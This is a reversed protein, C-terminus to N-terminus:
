AFTILYGMRNSIVQVKKFWWGLLWEGGEGGAQEEKVIKTKFGSSVSVSPSLVFNKMFTPMLESGGSNPDVFLFAIYDGMIPGITATAASPTSNYATFSPLYNGEPVRLARAIDAVDVNAATGKGKYAGGAITGIIQPHKCLAFHVSSSAVVYNYRIGYKAGQQHAAIADDIPVSTNPASIWNNTTSKTVYNGTAYNGTTTIATLFEQEHQLKLRSAMALAHVARWKAISGYQDVATQEQTKSLFCRLGHGALVYSATSDGWFFEKPTSRESMQTDPINFLTDENLQRYAGALNPVGFQTVLQEALYDGMPNQYGWMLDHLINTKVVTQEQFTWVKMQEVDRPTVGQVDAAAQTIQQHSNKDM